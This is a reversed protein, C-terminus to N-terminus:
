VRVDILQRLFCMVNEERASIEATAWYVDFGLAIGHKHSLKQFVCKCNPACSLFFGDALDLCDSV